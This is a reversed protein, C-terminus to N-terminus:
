ATLDVSNGNDRMIQAVLMEEETMLSSLEDLSSININRRRSQQEQQRQGEEFERNQGQELNREFEHSAVTVDISNVKVGAQRLTERLEAVQTELANKVADNSATIQAHIEGEKSSIQLYVKGLNEPNLQMEISSTGESIGIKVNEAFQEMLDMVDIFQYSNDETQPLIVDQVQNTTFAVDATHGAVHTDTRDATHVENERKAFTDTNGDDPNKQMMDGPKEDTVVADMEIDSVAVNEDTSIETEVTMKQESPIEEGTGELMQQVTEAFSADEIVQPESLVDMQALLEQMQAPMLDLQNMLENQVGQMEQMLNVFEPQFLLEEPASADTLYVAVQVLNQPELVGFATLGLEEMATRVADEDVGLEQAIKEVVKQELDNSSDMVEDMKDPETASAIEHDRYQYRSYTNQSREAADTKTSTNSHDISETNSTTSYNVNVMSSFVAEMSSREAKTKGTAANANLKQSQSVSSLNFVNASTM